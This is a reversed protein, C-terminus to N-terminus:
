ISMPFFLRRLIQQWSLHNVGSATRKERKKNGGSKEGSEYVLTPPKHPLGSRLTQLIGERSKKPMSRPMNGSPAQAPKESLNSM